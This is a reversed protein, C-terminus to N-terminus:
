KTCLQTQESKTTIKRKNRRLQKLTKKQKRLLPQGAHLSNHSILSWMSAKRNNTLAYYIYSHLIICSLLIQVQLWNTESPSYCQQWHFPVALNMLPMKQHSLLQRCSLLYCLKEVLCWNLLLFSQQSTDHRTTGSLVPTWTSIGIIGPTRASNSLCPSFLRISDRMSVM